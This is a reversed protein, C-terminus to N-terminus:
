NPECGTFAGQPPISTHILEICLGEVVHETASTTAGAAATADQLLKLAEGTISARTSPSVEVPGGPGSPAGAGAPPGSSTGATPPPTAPAGAPSATAPTTAGAPGSTAPTTVAVPNPEPTLAVVPSGGPTGAAPGTGAPASTTPAVPPRSRARAPIKREAPRGTRARPGATATAAPPSSAPPSSAQANSKPHGAGGGGAVLAGGLLGVGFAVGVLAVVLWTALKRM